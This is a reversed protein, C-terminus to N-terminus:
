HDTAFDEVDKRTSLRTILMEKKILKCSEGINEATELKDGTLMWIKIGAQQLSNITQPVDAQLRDEVATAGLLVINREFNDNINNINAERRILNTMDKEANALDGLYKDKEDETVVRMGMLLTRLGQKSAIDLFWEIKDRMEEPYQKNDLREKIISDAGKIYLKIKGDVPDRVLISMRKRDSNFDVRRLVEYNYKGVMFVTNANLSM